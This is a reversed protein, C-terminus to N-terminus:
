DTLLTFESNAKGAPDLVLLRYSYLGGPVRTTDTFAYVGRPLWGSMNQWDTGGASSRQLLCTLNPVASAWTLIISNLAPGPQTPQWTPHAPGSDDYARGVLVDTPRSTRGVDDAALLRYYLARRAPVPTDTWILEPPRAM